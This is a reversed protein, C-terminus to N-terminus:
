ILDVICSSNLIDQILLCQRNCLSISLYISAATLRVNVWLVFCVCCLSSSVRIRKWQGDSSYYDNNVMLPADGNPQHGVIVNAIHSAALWACVRESIHIPKGNELYSNYIVSPNTSKDPMVGMGCQILRSGPQRHGYGNSNNSAASSSPSPNTSESGSRPGNHAQASGGEIDWCYESLAQPTPTSSLNRDMERLYDHITQVYHQIESAAFRNIKETWEL